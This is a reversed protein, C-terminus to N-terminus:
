NTLIQHLKNIDMYLLATYTSRGYDSYYKTKKKMHWGELAESPAMKKM